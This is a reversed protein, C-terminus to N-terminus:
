YLREDGEGRVRLEVHWDLFLVNGTASRAGHWVRGTDLYSVEVDVIKRQPDRWADASTGVVPRGAAFPCLVPPNVGPVRHYPANTGYCAGAAAFCSASGTFSEGRDSPCRAAGATGGYGFLPRAAEDSDGGMCRFYEAEGRRGQWSLPGYGPFRERNEGLYMGLATATNHLNTVCCVERVRGRAASFSPTLLALLLTVVAVVVLLELVTFATRGSGRRGGVIVASRHLGIWTRM